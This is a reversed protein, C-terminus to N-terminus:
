STKQLLKSSILWAKVLTRLVSHCFLAGGDSKGDTALSFVASILPLGEDDDVILSDDIVPAQTPSGTIRAGTEKHKSHGNVPIKGNNTAM